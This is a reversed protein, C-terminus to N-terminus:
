IQAISNTKVYDILFHGVDLSEVPKYLEIVDTAKLDHEKVFNKSEDKVVYADAHYNFLIPRLYYQIRFFNAYMQNLNYSVGHVEEM